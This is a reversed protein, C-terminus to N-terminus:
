KSRLDKGKHIVVTPKDKPASAPAKVMKASNGSYANGKGGNGGNKNAM